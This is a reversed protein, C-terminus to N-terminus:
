KSEPLKFDTIIFVQTLSSLDVSPEIIGYWNLGSEEKQASVIKGIVLGQPFVEGKGSTLVTDGNILDAGAPLFSLKLLGEHMMSFDGGAVGSIGTRDILAGISSEADIITRVISTTAGVEIVQGVLYGTETIVSDYQEIGGNSGINIVFSSSWNSANWSVIYADELVIDLQTDHLKFLERLRKNEANSIKSQRVIEEIEAIYAKLEENESKLKDYDYMYGYVGELYDAIYTLGREFPSSIIRVTDSFIDSSGSLAFSSLFIVVLVILLVAAVRIGKIKFFEKM